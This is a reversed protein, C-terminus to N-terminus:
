LMVRADRLPRKREGALHGSLHIGVAYKSFSTRNLAHRQVLDTMWHPIASQCKLELVLCGAGLDSRWHHAFHCCQYPDFEFDWSETRVASIQRDFCVRAYEDVISVYAEREYRVMLTPQAGVEAIIRSFESLSHRAEPDDHAPPALGAAAEALQWRDVMVRTKDIVDSVRRKVELLAPSTKSYTRARLKLREWDGRMNARYFALDPSDLYLSSIEYGLQDPHERRGTRSPNHADPDCVLEIDRRIRDAAYEDILYKRELRQFRTELRSMRPVRRDM